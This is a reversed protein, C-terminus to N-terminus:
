RPWFRGLLAGFLTAALAAALSGGALWGLFRRTGAQQEVASGLSWLLLAVFLLPILSTMVLPAVLIQYARWGLAQGPRLLLHDTILEGLRPVLGLLYTISFVVLVAIVGPTFRSGIRTEIYQPPSSRPKM